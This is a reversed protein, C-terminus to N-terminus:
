SRVGEREALMTVADDLDYAYQAGYDIVYRMAERKVHAGAIEATKGPHKLARLAARITEREVSVGLASLMEGLTETEDPGFEARAYSEVGLPDELAGDIGWVGPTRLYPGHYWGGCRTRFLLQAFAYVGIADQSEPDPECTLGHGEIEVAIIDTASETHPM